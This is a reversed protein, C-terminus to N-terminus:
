NKVETSSLKAKLADVQSSPINNGSVDLIKLQNMTGLEDPLSAMRNNNAHIERLNKLQSIEPTLSELRNNEVNIVELKTLKAISAPLTTLQNNSVNLTTIDTRSLASDPLETLQQSTLDLTSSVKTASQANNSGTSQEPLKSDSMQKSIVYGGGLAVLAAIAIVIFKKPM